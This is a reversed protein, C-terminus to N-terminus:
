GDRPAPAGAEQPRPSSGGPVARGSFAWAAGAHLPLAFALTNDMGQVGGLHVGLAALALALQIWAAGAVIRRGLATQLAFGGPIWALLLPSLLLINLNEQFHQALGGTWSLIMIIALPALLVGMATTTRGLWRGATPDGRRQLIGLGVLPAALLLGTSAAVAVIREHGPGTAPTAYSLVEAPAALLGAADLHAELELPMYTAAHVSLPDDNSRGLFLYLLNAQVPDHEIYQPGMDRVSAGLPEQFSTPLGDDLAGDILDRLRTSCNDAIIRYTYPEDQRALEADLGDLLRATEHPELLLQASRVSREELRYQDLKGDWSRGYLAFEVDTFTTKIGRLPSEEIQLRYEYYRQTGNAEVLFGSHGFWAAAQIRGPDATVLHIRVDAPDQGHWPEAATPVSVTLLVALLSPLLLASTRRM